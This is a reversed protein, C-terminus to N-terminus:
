SLQYYDQSISFIPLHHHTSQKFMAQVQPDNWENENLGNLIFIGQDQYERLFKLEEISAYTEIEADSKEFEKDKAIEDIM